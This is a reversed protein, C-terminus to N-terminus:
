AEDFRLVTLSLVNASVLSDMFTQRDNHVPYRNDDALTLPVGRELKSSKWIRFQRNRSYVSLDALFDQRGNRGNVFLMDLDQGHTNHYANAYGDFLDDFVANRAAVAIAKVFKGCVVNNEFVTDMINFVLHQSFKTATSSDLVLVHDRQCDVGYKVSLCSTVYNVFIDVLVPGFVDRNSEKNFEIDFYLKCASGESIVEYFHRLGEDMALYKTTFVDYPAVCFRRTRNHKELVFVGVDCEQQSANDLAQQQRDFWRIDQGYM